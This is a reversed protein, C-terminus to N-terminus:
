CLIILFSILKLLSSNMDSLFTVKFLSGAMFWVTDLENYERKIGEERALVEAQNILWM